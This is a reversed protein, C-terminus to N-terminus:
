PKIAQFGIGGHYGSLANWMTWQFSHDEPNLPNGNCLWVSQPRLGAALIAEEYEVAHYRRESVGKAIERRCDECRALEDEETVGCPIVPEQLTTVIGGPRLVRAMEELGSSLAGHHMTNATLVHEFMGDAFPLDEKQAVLFTLSPHVATEFIDCAWVEAGCERALWGLWGTHCGLDLVQQGKLDGLVGWAKPWKRAEYWEQSQPQPYERRMVAAEVEPFPIRNLVLVNGGV